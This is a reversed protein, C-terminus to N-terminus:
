NCINRSYKRINIFSHFLFVACKLSFIYCQWSFTYCQVKQLGSRKNNPSLLFPFTTGTQTVFHVERGPQKKGPFSNWEGIFPITLPECQCELRKPSSLFFSDIIGAWIPVGSPQLWIRSVIVM